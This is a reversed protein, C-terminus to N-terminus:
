KKLLLYSGAALLLIGTLKIWNFPLHERGLLGFHDIAYATLLQLTIIGTTAMGVGLRPISVAVGYIIAVGIPGGLWAYLPVSPIKQLIGGFGTAGPNFFCLLLGATVSGLLNVIFTAQILGVIKGALANLTGQVAM